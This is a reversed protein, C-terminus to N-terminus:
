RGLLATVRALLADPLCPKTCVEDAGAARARQTDDVTAHGTVVIVVVNRTRSDSKIVRTAEWGDIGPMSLDMIIADPIRHAVCALAEEGNSAQEVEFGAREFYVAYLERSDEDDDVVVVRLAHDGAKKGGSPM